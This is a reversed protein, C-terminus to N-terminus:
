AGCEELDITNQCRRSALVAMGGAVSRQLTVVAVDVNLVDLAANVAVADGCHATVGAM